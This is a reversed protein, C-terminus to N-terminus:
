EAKAGPSPPAENYICPYLIGMNRVKFLKKLVHGFPKLTNKTHVSIMNEKEKLPSTPRPSIERGLFVYNFM